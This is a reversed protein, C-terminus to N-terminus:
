STILNSIAGLSRIENRKMGHPTMGIDTEIEVESQIILQVGAGCDNCPHPLLLHARLGERPKLKKSVFWRVSSCSDCLKRVVQSCEGTALDWLQVSNNASGVIALEHSWSAVVCNAPSVDSTELVKLCVKEGLDWFRVTGDSGCTLARSRSWDVTMCTVADTHGALTQCSGTSLDILCFSGDDHGSLAVRFGVRRPYVTRWLTCSM